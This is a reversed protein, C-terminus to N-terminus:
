DCFTTSSRRGLRRGRRRHLTAESGGWRRHPLCRNQHWHRRLTVSLLVITYLLLLPVQPLREIHEVAVLVPEDGGLLEAGHQARKAQVTLAAGAPGGSIAAVHYAENCPDMRQHFGGTKRKEMRSVDLLEM